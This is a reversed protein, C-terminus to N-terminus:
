AGSIPQLLLAKRVYTYPVGILDYRCARSMGHNSSKIAAAIKQTYEGHVQLDEDAYQLCDAGCKARRGAM